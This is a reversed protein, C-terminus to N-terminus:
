VSVPRLVTKGPEGGFPARTVIWSDGPRLSYPANLRLTVAGSSGTIRFSGCSGWPKGGRVLYVEYYTGQPLKPLGAVSLTMPWNGRQSRWVDLTARAQPALATGRLSLQAVPQSASSSGSDRQNAVGYGAAFVAAVSVTAALLLLVPRKRPRRRHLPVVGFDPANELRPTLEPPPGAQLLLDHAGRLREREDGRTETGVLDDFNPERNM